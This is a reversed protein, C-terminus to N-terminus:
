PRPAPGYRWEYASRDEREATAPGDPTGWTVRVRKTWVLRHPVLTAPDSVVLAETEASVDRIEDAPIAAGEGAAALVVADRARDLAAADPATRLVLEVCGAERDGAACPVRRRASFRVEHPMRLGPVLPVSADAKMAYTEGVELDAGIWFGVEVNWLEEAEARMAAEALAVARDAKARPVEALAFIKGLVRRMAEAGELGGFRGRADVVEVVQESARLAQEAFGPPFPADGSWSTDRTAIRIAAGEAVARTVFRAAFTSEPKGAQTRTRRYEVRGELPDPWAFRLTVVDARRSPREEPAAGAALAPLVAALVAAARM